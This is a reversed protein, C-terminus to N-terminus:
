KYNKRDERNNEWLEQPIRIRRGKDVVFVDTITIGILGRNRANKHLVECAQNLSYYRYSSESGGNGDKFLYYLIFDSKLYDLGLRIWRIVLLTIIVIVLIYTIIDITNM